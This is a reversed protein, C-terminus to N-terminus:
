QPSILFLDKQKLPRYSKFKKINEQPRIRKINKETDLQAYNLGKIKKTAAYAQERFSSLDTMAGGIVSPFPHTSNSLFTEFKKNIGHKLPDGLIEKIKDEPNQFEGLIKQPVIDEANNISGISGYFDNYNDKSKGTISLIKNLNVDEYKTAWDSQNPIDGRSLYEKNFINELSKGQEEMLYKIYVPYKELDEIKQGALIDILTPSDAIGQQELWEKNREKFAKLQSGKIRNLFTDVRESDIAEVEASRGQATELKVRQSKLFQDVPETNLFPIGLQKIKDLIAQNVKANNETKSKAMEHLLFQIEPNAGAGVSELIKSRDVNETAQKFLKRKNRKLSRLRNANKKRDEQNAGEFEQYFLGKQIRAFRTTEAKNGTFRELISKAEPSVKVGDIGLKIKEQKWLDKYNPLSDWISKGLYEGDIRTPRNGQAFYLHGIGEETQYLKKREELAEIIRDNRDKLREINTGQRSSGSELLDEFRKIKEKRPKLLQDIYAPYM